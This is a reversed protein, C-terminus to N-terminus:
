SKSSDNIWFLTTMFAMWQWELGYIYLFITWVLTVICMWALFIELYKLFTLMANEKTQTRHRNSKRRVVQASDLVESNVKFGLLDGQRPKDM